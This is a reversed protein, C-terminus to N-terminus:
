NKSQNELSATWNVIATIPGTDPTAPPAVPAIFLFRNGDKTVDFQAAQSTV